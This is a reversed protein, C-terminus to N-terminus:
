YITILHIFFLQKSMANLRQISSYKNKMDSYIEMLKYGIRKKFM